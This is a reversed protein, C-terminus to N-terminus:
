RLHKKKQYLELIFYGPATLLLPILYYLLRFAILVAIINSPSINFNMRLFITEHVGLGAPIHTLVGAIGTLLYTFLIQYFDAKAGIQIILINIILALLTWQILSLFLQLCALTVPPFIFEESKFRIQSRRFCLIFYLIIACSGLIGIAYVAAVPLATLARVKDPFVMMTISVLLVHGIWNGLTSFLILKTITGLPVDWGQYIRYRLGLGGVFAGLNLTFAYCIISSWYIKLAPLDKVGMYRLGLFDFSGLIFFNIFVILLIPSLNVLNFQTFALKVESLKIEALAHYLLYAILCFFGFTIVPGIKQMVRRRSLEM